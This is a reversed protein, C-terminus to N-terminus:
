QPRWAYLNGNRTLALLTDGVLLPPTVVPSGDTSLRALLNGDDKSMLHLFGFGDGVVVSRGLLLPATLERNLLKDTSWTRQGSTRDWAVVKGDSESGFLWNEDGSLGTRGDAVKSWKVSGRVADVCGLMAQFARVCLEGGARSAPGILDVMREVDNGGRPVAVTAEWRVSGSSPNMGVLRGGLGAVLTDGVATLVGSQRLVLPEGTRTQSWLKAGSNGDFATVTRDAGLVFVRQGAVLPATYVAAPLRQRWVVEGKVLALLENRETVAAAMHGDFGAGASPPTGLNAQWVLSGAQADVVTILGKVGAVAVLNGAPTLTQSPLGGGVPMSWVQRASIMSVLPTLEAPKPRSSSSCAALSAAIVIASFVRYMLPSAM